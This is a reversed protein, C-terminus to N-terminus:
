LLDNIDKMDGAQCYYNEADMRTTGNLLEGQKIIFNNSILYILDERTIYGAIDYCFNLDKIMNWLENKDIYDSYYMRKFKLLSTLEDNIRVLFTYDVRENQNPIYEGDSTWDKTELLLLNGFHKTSKVSVIKDNMYFDFQDWKGLKYCELDPETLQYKNKFTEYIAYESLKGQFTDCFIESKRRHHTGGSRYNRHEGDSGFTMSYSFDFVKKIIEISFKNNKNFAKKSTIYLSNNNRQMKNFM